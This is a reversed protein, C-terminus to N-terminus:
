QHDKELYVIQRQKQAQKIEIDIQPGQNQASNHPVRFKEDKGGDPDQDDAQQQVGQGFGGQQPQSADAHEAEIQSKANQPPKTSLLVSKSSPGQPKSESGAVQSNSEPVAKEAPENPESAGTQLEGGVPKPEEHASQTPQQQLTAASQPEAAPHAESAPEQAPSPQVSQPEATPHAEVVPEHAQSSKPALSAQPETAPHADPVPEAPSPQQESAVPKSEAAAPQSRPEEAVPKPEEHTPQPEAEILKPEEHVPQSKPETAVLKTEQGSQPQQQLTAATQSEVAPHAETKPEAGQTKSVPQIPPHAEPAPQAPSSQQEIPSHTQSPSPQAPQPEAEQHLQSSAKPQVPQSGENPYAKISDEQQAGSSQLPQEHVQASNDHSEASYKPQARPKGKPEVVTEHYKPKSQGTSHPGQNAPADMLDNNANGNYAHRKSRHNVGRQATVPQQAGKNTPASQCLHSGQNRQPAQAPQGNGDDQIITKQHGKIEQAQAHGQGILLKGAQCHITLLSVSLVILSFKNM